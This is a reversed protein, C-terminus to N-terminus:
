GRARLRLYREQVAPLCCQGDAALLACRADPGKSKALLERIRTPTGEDVDALIEDDTLGFCACLPANLDKPFVPAKLQDCTVVVGSRNFYAADCSPSRCFYAADGMPERFEDRIHADLPGGFVSVGSGGCRPCQSAADFESERVFAKNM